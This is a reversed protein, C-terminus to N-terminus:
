FQKIGKTHQRENRTKGVSIEVPERVTYVRHFYHRVISAAARPLAFNYRHKKLLADRWSSTNPLPPITGRM